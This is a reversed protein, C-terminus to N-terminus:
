NTGYVFRNNYFSSTKRLENNVYEVGYQELLTKQDSFLNVGLGLKDGEITIGLSALTTPYMDLASFLRNKTNQTTTKSNIICNYVTRNYNSDIKKIDEWWHEPQMSIHDGCIVITTNKYFEQNQIWKVFDYVQKSACSIVNEYQTEHKGECLNCAYGDVHHTDVTLMTFNFPEQKQSIELLQEKAYNYLKEDDYGWFVKEEETMKGKEIAVDLDWINYNGHQEFYNKRGGFAADSGIMLYNNYGQKELIEGINEAGPLFTSYEGYTNGDIGIKLPLGSTQSVMAAITWGTNKVDQMGGFKNTHSFSINQEALNTLEPILNEEFAGELEKSAYTSEMSEMFIYILNQKEEPFTIKVQESSVYNEEILKSNDTVIKIYNIIETKQCSYIVSIILIIIAVLLKFRASKYILKLDSYIDRKRHKEQKTKIIKDVFLIVCILATYTIIKPLAEKLYNFIFSDNTGELPVKLHFIIEEFSLNGFNNYLWNISIIIAIAILIILVVAVNNKKM